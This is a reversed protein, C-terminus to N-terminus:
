RKRGVAVSSLYNEVCSALLQVCGCQPSVASAGARIKASSFAPNNVGIDSDELFVSSRQSGELSRTQEVVVGSIGASCKTECGFTTNTLAVRQRGGLEACCKVSHQTTHRFGTGFTLFHFNSLRLCVWYMSKGCQGCISCRCSPRTLTSLLRVQNDIPHVCRPRPAFPIDMWMIATMAAGRGGNGGGSGGGDRCCCLYGSSAGCMSFQLVVVSLSVAASVSLPTGIALVDIEDCKNVCTRAGL